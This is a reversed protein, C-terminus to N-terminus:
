AYKLRPAQAVTEEVTEAVTEEVTEEVTPEPFSARRRCTWM